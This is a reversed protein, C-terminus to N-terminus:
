IDNRSEQYCDGCLNTLVIKNYIEKQYPCEVTSVRKKTNCVDCKLKNLSVKTENLSVKTENPSVKTENLSVKDQKKSKNQGILNIKQGLSLENIPVKDM